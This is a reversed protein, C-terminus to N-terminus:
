CVAPLKSSFYAHPMAVLRVRKTKRRCKNCLPVKCAHTKGKPLLLVHVLHSSFSLPPPLFTHSTFSCSCSALDSLLQSRGTVSPSHFCVSSYSPACPHPICVCLHPHPIPSLPPTSPLAAFLRWSSEHHDWSFLFRAKWVGDTGAYRFDWLMIPSTM